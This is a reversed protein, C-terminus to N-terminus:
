YPNLAASILPALKEAMYAHGADTPHVGDAGILGPRDVFWRAAIPDVFTAGALESRFLM